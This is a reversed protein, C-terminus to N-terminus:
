KRHLWLKNERLRGQTVTLRAVLTLASLTQNDYLLLAYALLRRKIPYVRLGLGHYSRKRNPAPGSRLTSIKTTNETVLVCATALRQIGM